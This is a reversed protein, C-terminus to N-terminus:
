RHKMHNVADSAEKSRAVENVENTLMKDTTSEAETPVAPCNALAGSDNFRVEGLAQVATSGVVPMIEGVDPTNFATASTSVWAMPQLRSGLMVQRRRQLPDNCWYEETTPLVTNCDAQPNSTTTTAIFERNSQVIRGVSTRVMAAMVGNPGSSAVPTGKVRFTDSPSSPKPVILAIRISGYSSMANGSLPPAFWYGLRETPSSGVCFRFYQIARAPYSSNSARWPPVTTDLFYDTNEWFTVITPERVDLTGLAVSEPEEGLTGRYVVQLILDTANIPIPDTSFDFTKEVSNPLPAGAGGPLDEVSTIALAASVSIDQFVTRPGLAGCTPETIIGVLLPPTPFTQSREGSLNAKYCPNRHYRAIAYLQGGAAVTQPIPSGGVGPETIPDTINRVKLRVKDFGFVGGGTTKRPWGAVDITHPEGQNVVAFIKQDIPEIELTGRFFYNILGASYAIARPILANAHNRLHRERVTVKLPRSENMISLLTVQGLPIKGSYVADIADVYTPNAPEPASWAIDIFNRGRDTVSVEQGGELNPPPSPMVRAKLNRRGNATGETFFGRNAYDVLGKRLNFDDGGAEDRTTFFRRPTAFQPIPYSGVPPLAPIELNGSEVTFMARLPERDELPSLNIDRTVRINTYVEMLRRPLDANLFPWTMNSHNHRDIRAHQPQSGDQLIHVVQGLAKATTALFFLRAESEFEDATSSFTANATQYTLAKFYARRADVWTFHNDRTLLPDYTPLLANTLGLAWNIAKVRQENIIFPVDPIGDNNIPDYFHGFVRTKDGYPDADPIPPSIYEGIDLDDERVVGRMLWAELRLQPTTGLTGPNAGLRHGEPFRSYEWNNPFRNSQSPISPDVQFQDWDPLLDFYKDSPGLMLSTLGPSRFTAKPDYRDFGLRQILVNGAPGTSNLNSREFTRLTIWAHTDVEWAAVQCPIACMFLFPAFWRM